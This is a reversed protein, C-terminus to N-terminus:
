ENGDDKETDDKKANDVDKEQKIGDVPDGIPIIRVKDKENDNPIKKLESVPKSINANSQSVIPKNDSKKKMEVTEDQTDTKKNQEQSSCGVVAVFCLTTIAFFNNKALKSKINM